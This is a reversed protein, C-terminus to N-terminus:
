GVRELQDAYVLAERIRAALVGREEPAGALPEGSAAELTVSCLPHTRTGSPTEEWESHTFVIRPTEGPGEGAQFELTIDEGASRDDQVRSFRAYPADAGFDPPLPLRTRIEDLISM